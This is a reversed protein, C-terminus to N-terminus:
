SSQGDQNRNVVTIAAALENAFLAHDNGTFTRVGQEDAIRRWNAVLRELRERMETDRQRSLEFALAVVEAVSDKDGHVMFNRWSFGAAANEALYQKAYDKMQEASYMVQADPLPPLKSM